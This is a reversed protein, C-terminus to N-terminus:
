ADSEGGFLRVAAQWLNQLFATIAQWIRAFFGIKAQEESASNTDAETEPEQEAPADTVQEQVETEPTPQLTEPKMDGEVRSQTEGETEPVVTTVSAQTEPQTAAGATESDPVGDEVSGDPDASPENEDTPANTVSEESQEYTPMEVNDEATEEYTPQETPMEEYTGVEQATDAETPENMSPQEENEQENPSEPDLLQGASTEVSIDPDALNEVVFKVLSSSAVSLCLMAAVSIGVWPAIKGLRVGIGQPKAAAKQAQVAATVRETFGEPAHLACDAIAANLALYEDLVAKCQPCNAVHQEVYAKQTENLEGDAYAELLEAIQKCDKM